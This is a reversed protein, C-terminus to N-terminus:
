IGARFVAAYAVFRFDLVLMEDHRRGDVCLHLGDARLHRFWSLGRWMRFRSTCIPPNALMTTTTTRTPGPNPESRLWSFPASGAHIAAAPAASTSEVSEYTTTNRATKQAWMRHRKLAWIPSASCAAFESSGAPPAPPNASPAQASCRAPMDVSWM